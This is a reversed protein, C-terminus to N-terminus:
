VRVLRRLLFFGVLAAITSAVLIGAKGMVIHNADTFALGTIFLSMTFGIGALCGVGFIHQWSVGEPLSAWGLKVSVWSLLTIGLPKGIVLGFIIGLTAREVLTETFGESITIGANALAFIPMILFSQWPHLIRELRHAPPQVYESADELSQIVGRIRERHTVLQDPDDPKKIESLLFRTRALYDDEDLLTKVPIALAALVGAITAHIGSALFCLWLLVGFIFYILPSRIGLRNMVFMGGLVVFGLLLALLDLESTYFIAIVLVAGLDDVIALATLFVKLPLPVGKGLLALIGLAFAIDTAMPIGWGNIEPTGFNMLAYIGAPIVMGGVAAAIPLMAKRPSSLEGTLVERKIELGVVFFFIVMLGDNIWHHLTSDLSWEGLRIAFHAHWLENYLDKWPSNAWILAIVTFVLLVIGGAAADHSFREFPRSIVDIPRHQRNWITNQSM